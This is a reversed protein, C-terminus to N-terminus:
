KQQLFGPLGMGPEFSTQRRKHAFLFGTGFGQEGHVTVADIRVTTFFLQEAITQVQMRFNNGFSEESGTM